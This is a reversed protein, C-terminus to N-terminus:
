KIVLLIQLDMKLNQRIPGISFKFVHQWKDVRCSTTGPAVLSVMFLIFLSPCSKAAESLLKKYFSFEPGPVRNELIGLYESIRPTGM